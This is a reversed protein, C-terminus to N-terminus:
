EDKKIFTELSGLELSKKELWSSRNPSTSGMGLRHGQKLCKWTYGQGAQIAEIPALGRAIFGAVSASLTCGCGYYQAPLREWKFTKVLEQGQYLINYIVPTTEHVGTIFVFKSGYEQLKNACAHTTDAGPVLQYASISDAILITTIPFLLSTIANIFEVSIQNHQGGDKLCPHFIIPIHPYDRLITYIATVNEVSGILGVKFAAIPMDELVARAQEIVLSTSLPRFDKLECTDQVSVSTVVTSCHCGLSFLTEIDAQIGSGGTPDNASFAMVIPVTDNTPKM